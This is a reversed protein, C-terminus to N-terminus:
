FDPCALSYRQICLLRQNGESKKKSLSDVDAFFEDAMVISYKKGLDMLNNNKEMRSSFLKWRYQINEYEKFKEELDLAL